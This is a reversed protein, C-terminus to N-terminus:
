DAHLARIRDLLDILTHLEQESLGSALHRDTANVVDDLGSLLALGSASIRVGVCRRDDTARRRRVWGRKELRDLMRTIGPAREVMREAIALTNLGEPEAGRLIRLVNYQQPTVEAPALVEALRRRVVDTTRILGLTAEQAKSRFPRSQKIERQLNGKDKSM